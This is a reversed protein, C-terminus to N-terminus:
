LPDRAQAPITSKVGAFRKQNKAGLAVTHQVPRSARWRELESLRYRILGTGLIHYPAGERRWRRITAPDLDWTKAVSPGSLLKEEVNLTKISILHLYGYKGFMDVFFSM